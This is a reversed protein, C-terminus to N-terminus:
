LIKLANIYRFSKTKRAFGIVILSPGGPERKM